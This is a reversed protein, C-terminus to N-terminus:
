RSKWRLRGAWKAWEQTDDRELIAEVTHWDRALEENSAMRHVYSHCARCLWAVRNLDCEEHWGRKLAKAHVARPILHHYTLPIWDRECIECATTRTASFPLPKATVTSSYEAFISSLINTLDSTESMMGYTVLSEPVSPDVLSTLFEITTGPVNEAYKEALVPSAQTANFSLTQVDRPFSSFIEQAIFDIFEALEAPDNDEPFSPKSHRTNNNRKANRRRRTLSSKEISRNLISKSVCERFIEYNERTDDGINM